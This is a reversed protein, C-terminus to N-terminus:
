VSVGCDLLTCLYVLSRLTGSAGVAALPLCVRMQARGYVSGALVGRCTIWLM